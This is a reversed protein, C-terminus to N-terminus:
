RNTQIPGEVYPAGIGGADLMLMIWRQCCFTSVWRSRQIHIQQALGGSQRHMIVLLIISIRRSISNRLSSDMRTQRYRLQQTKRPPPNPLKRWSAVNELKVNMNSSKRTLSQVLKIPLHASNLALRHPSIILSTLRSIPICASNQWLMGIPAPSYYGYSLVTTRNRFFVKLFLSQVSVSRFKTM